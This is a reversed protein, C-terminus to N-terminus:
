IIEFLIKEVMQENIKVPNNLVRDPNFGHKVINPIDKEEVNLDRLRHSLGIRGILDLLYNMASEADDVNLIAYLQKMRKLIEEVKLNVKEQINLENVNANIPFFYPLTLMVAHGHPIDHFASLPYSLAHAATTKAISIAKGSLHAAKLMAARSKETPANVAIEIHELILSLAQLSHQRSLKTSNVSWYAEISQALADCGGEATLTAPLSDTLEPDLIVNEPPMSPHALSYKVKDSYIVAFPTIEAGTGATTPIFLRKINHGQPAKKGKIFDEVVDSENSLLSGAKALDVTTGGGVAIIFDCKNERLTDLVGQLDDLTPIKHFGSLSTVRYGELQPNITAAAGCQEFSGNGRLLLISQPRETGVIEHLRKLAGNLEFVQTMEKQLIQHIPVFAIKLDRTNCINRIM